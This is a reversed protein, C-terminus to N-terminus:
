VEKELELAAEHIAKFISRVMDPDLKLKEALALKSALVTQWRENDLPEIGNEKKYMGIGRVIEMREALLRLRQEDNVDVKERMALLKNTEMPHEPDFIVGQKSEDFQQWTLQQARDTKAHDPDPHVEVMLGDFSTGDEDRYEQAEQILVLVKDRAGGMHSPDILMPLGTKRKVEMAMELDPINRLGKPNPDNKGPAFGRHCLIIQKPDAGGAIVHDITGLWHELNQWPQNKLLLISHKDGRVVQGIEQQLIHNQNRSGIWILVDKGSVGSIKDVVAHANETTLVETAPVLGLQAVEGLWAIGEIGIGDFGPKTRPKWLSARVIDIGRKEAQHASQMVQDRSEAACPGAITMRRTIAEIM